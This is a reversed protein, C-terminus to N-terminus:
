QFVPRGDQFYRRLIEDMSYELVSDKMIFSYRHNTRVDAPLTKMLKPGKTEFYNKKDIMESVVAFYVNKIVTEKKGAVKYQGIYELSSVVGGTEEFVERVAADEPKEGAEVKGGPFEIGRSPHHTLLWSGKFWAVVWVHKPEVSYPHDNTSFYVENRYYDYFRYENQM